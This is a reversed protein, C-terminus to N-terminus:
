RCLYAHYQVYENRFSIVHKRFVLLSEGLFSCVIVWGSFIMVPFAADALPFINSLGVIWGAQLDSCVEWGYFPSLVLVM